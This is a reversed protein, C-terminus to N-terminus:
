VHKFFGLARPESQVKTTGITSGDSHKGTLFLELYVRFCDLHSKSISLSGM